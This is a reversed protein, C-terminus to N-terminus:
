TFSGTVAGREAIGDNHPLPLTDQHRAHLNSYYRRIVIAVRPSNDKVDGVQRVVEHFHSM